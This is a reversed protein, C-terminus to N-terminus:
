SETRTNVSYLSIHEVGYNRLHKIHLVSTWYARSCVVSSLADKLVLRIMKNKGVQYFKTKKGTNDVITVMNHM